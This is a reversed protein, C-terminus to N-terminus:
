GGVGGSGSGAQGGAAAEGAGAGAEGASGGAAAGSGDNGAGGGVAGGAAGGLPPPKSGGFLSGLDPVERRGLSASAGGVEVGAGGISAAGISFGAEAPAGASQGARWVLGSLVVAPAGTGGLRLEGVTASSRAGTETIAATSSGGVIAAADGVGIDGLHTAAESRR